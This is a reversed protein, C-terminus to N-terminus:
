GTLVGHKLKDLLLLRFRAGSFTGPNAVRFTFLEPALVISLTLTNM